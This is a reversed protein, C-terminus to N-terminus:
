NAPDELTEVAAVELNEVVTDLELMSGLKMAAELHEAPLLNRLRDLVSEAVRSSDIELAPHSQTFGLLEAAALYQGDEVQQQAVGVLADLTLPAAGIVISETLAERLQKWAVQHEGLM